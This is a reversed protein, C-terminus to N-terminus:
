RRSCVEKFYFQIDKSIIKLASVVRSLLLLCIYRLIRKMYFHRLNLLKKKIEHYLDKFWINKQEYPNIIQDLLCM